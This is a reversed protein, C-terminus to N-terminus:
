DKIRSIKSQAAVVSSRWLSQGTSNMRQRTDLDAIKKGAGLMSMEDRGRFLTMFLEIKEDDPM